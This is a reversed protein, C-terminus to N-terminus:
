DSQNQVPFLKLAGMPQAARPHAGRPSLPKSRVRCSMKNNMIMSENFKRMGHDHYRSTKWEMILTVNFDIMVIHFPLTPLCPFHPKALFTHYFFPPL